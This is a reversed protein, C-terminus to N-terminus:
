LIFLTILVGMYLFPVLPVEDKIGVKKRCLQIVSYICCLLVGYFIAGVIRQGTLYLGMVFVLKVDGAGLQKHSLLYCLLFITGGMLAGSMSQFFLALGGETDLVIYVAVTSLWLLVLLKLFENPVRKSKWDIIALVSMSWLLCMTLVLMPMSVLENYHMLAAVWGAWALIGVIYMEKSALMQNKRQLLLVYRKDMIDLAIYYMVTIFCVGVVASIIVM